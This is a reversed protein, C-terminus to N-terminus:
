IIGWKERLRKIEKDEEQQIQKITENNELEKQKNIKQEAKSYLLDINKEWENLPNYSQLQEDAEEYVTRGQWMVKISNNYDKITIEMPIGMKLGDYHYGIITSTHNEDFENVKDEETDEYLFRIPNSSFNDQIIESGFVRCIIFIKGTKGYFDKQIAETLRLSAIKEEINQM